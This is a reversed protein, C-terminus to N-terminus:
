VAPPRYYAPAHAACVEAWGPFVLSTDISLELLAGPAVAVVGPSKKHRASLSRPCYTWSKLEATARQWHPCPPQKAYWDCSSFGRRDARRTGNHLHLALEGRQHAVALGRSHALGRARATKGYARELSVDSGQIQLAALEGGV